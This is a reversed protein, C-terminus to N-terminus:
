IAMMQFTFFKMGDAYEDQGSIWRLEDKVHIRFHMRM